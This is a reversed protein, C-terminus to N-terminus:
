RACSSPPCCGAAEAIRGLVIYNTNSYAWRTGPAFTPPHATAIAVLERPSWERLRDRLMDELVARDETYNFLGSTHNLLQRVTIREGGPVLGSLWQEVTDDLSLKDEAALQLVVTATFTKTLSGIRFRDGARMRTRADRDAYGSAVRRTRAGHRVLVVAGPAGARTLRGVARDLKDARAPAAPASALATACLAGAALVTLHRRRFMARGYPRPPRTGDPARAM